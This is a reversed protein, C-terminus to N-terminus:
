ENKNGERFHKCNETAIRRVAPVYSESPILKCVKRHICSECKLKM